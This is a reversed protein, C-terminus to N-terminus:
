DTTPTALLRLIPFTAYILAFNCIFYKKRTFCAVSKLELNAKNIIIELLASVTNLITWHYHGHNWLFWSPNCTLNIFDESDCYGDIYKLSIQVIKVVNISSTM